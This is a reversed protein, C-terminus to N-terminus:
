FKLEGRLVNEVREILPGAEAYGENLLRLRGDRELLLAPFGRVGMRQCAVFDERTMRKMDESGFRAVFADRDLGVGAAADALTDTATPDRNDRYFADQISLFIALARAGDMSRATVVARCAPETDYVFDDRELITYNFPQGSTEGVTQWHRRLHGKLTDDMIKTTYPRLGGVILRLGAREGLAERVAVLQPGFGYCWSCMPDGVYILMAQSM